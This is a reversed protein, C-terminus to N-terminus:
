GLAWEWPPPSFLFNKKWFVSFVRLFLFTIQQKKQFNGYSYSSFKERLFSLFGPSLSLSLYHEKEGGGQGGWRGGDKRIRREQLRIV